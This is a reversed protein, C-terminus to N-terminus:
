PHYHQLKNLKDDPNVWLYKTSSKRSILNNIKVTFYQLRKGRPGILM